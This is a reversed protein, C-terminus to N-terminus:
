VKRNILKQHKTTLSSSSLLLPLPLLYLHIANPLGSFFNLTLLYSFILLSIFIQSPRPASKIKQYFFLAFITAFLTLGFLGGELLFSLYQNQVIERSSGLEPYNQYLIIGASGLGSGFLYYSPNKAWSKFAKDSFSLRIDTSDSVYGHFRSAPPITQPSPTLGPTPQDLSPTSPTSTSLSSQSPPYASSPSQSASPTLLPRLDIRNLSLHNLSKTIGSFFTDSTPSLASFIGQAFLSLIFSILVLLSAHLTPRPRSRILLLFGVMIAAFFSLIAGRSFTFFLTTLIFITIIPSFIPSKPLKPRLFLFSLCLFAPALFLNGLFQPEIAFGNPHPFGFSQYVCGQCLLTNARPLGAIDLLSQIWSWLAIILSSYILSKIFLLKLNPFRQLLLYILYSDLIILWFIGATLFARLPSPSFLISFSLYCPLLLPLITYIKPRSLLPKLSHYISNPQLSTPNIKKLSILAPTAVFFFLLLWILTISFELHMNTTSGLPIVPHYSFFLAPPLALFLLKTAKLALRPM